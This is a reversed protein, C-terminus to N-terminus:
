QKILNTQTKVCKGMQICARVSTRVCFNSFLRFFYSQWQYIGPIRIITTEVFCVAPILGLFRETQKWFLSINEVSIRGFYFDPFQPFSKQKKKSTFFINNSFVKIYVIFKIHLFASRIGKPLIIDFMYFEWM